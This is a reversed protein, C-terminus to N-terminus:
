LAKKWNEEEEEEKEEEEEEEEMAMVVVLITVDVAWVVVRPLFEVSYVFWIGFFQM